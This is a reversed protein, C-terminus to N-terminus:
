QSEKKQIIRHLLRALRYDQKAEELLIPVYQIHTGQQYRLDYYFANLSRSKILALHPELFHAMM